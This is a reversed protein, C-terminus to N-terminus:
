FRSNSKSIFPRSVPFQSHHLILSPLPFNCRWCSSPRPFHFLPHPPFPLSPHDSQQRGPHRNTANSYHFRQQALFGCEYSTRPWLNKIKVTAVWDSDQSLVVRPGQQWHTGNSVERWLVNVSSNVAPSFPYRIVIKAGNSYVAGIRTFTVDRAKDLFPTTAFEAAALLLASNIALNIWNIHQSPFPLCLFISWFQDTWRSHHHQGKNTLSAPFFSLFM